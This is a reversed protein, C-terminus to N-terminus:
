NVYAVIIYNNNKILNLHHRLPYIGFYKKSRHAKSKSHKIRAFENIFYINCKNCKIINNIDFKKIYVKHIIVCKIDKNKNM